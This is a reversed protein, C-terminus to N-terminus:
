PALYARAAGRGAVVGSAWAWQFNFGGIRGDVDCLEGCLHLGPCVRSEMTELHLESLPVGGATVEAFLWGRDGTIPLPSCEITERLAERLTRSLSRVTASPDVGSAECFVRAVRTPLGHDVLIRAISHAHENNAHLWQRDAPQTPLWNAILSAGPDQRRAATFHRSIDLAAPGSLGFHTLLVSGTVAHLKKGSGARVELTAPMAIGTLQTLWHGKPLVLPVLAPFVDGEQPSPRISHGLSRALAYGAGDSGTKPLSKGGTALIVRRAWCQTADALASEGLSGASQTDVDREIVFGEEHRRVSRVRWPHVVHVGADDTARLLADLVTRADDSVPFLKGTEEQKLEVGLEAFFSRTQAVDFQLLVKRIAHVSSGAYEAPDVYHHTVNCRGGGAVLIKAGLKKAGDFAAVSVQPGVGHQVLARGAAIAAMMGAAGCGVVAIECKSHPV